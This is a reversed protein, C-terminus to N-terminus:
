PQDGREFAAVERLTTTVELATEALEDNWDSVDVETDLDREFAEIAFHVRAIADPDNDKDWTGLANAPLGAAISLAGILCVASGHPDQYGGRFWGREELIDAAKELLEPTRM